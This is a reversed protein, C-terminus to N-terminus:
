RINENQLAIAKNQENIEENYINILIAIEQPSMQQFTSGDINIKTFATYMTNYFNQLGTSFLSLIINMFENSLVTAKVETLNFSNNGDIITCDKLTKSLERAFQNIRTLIITPLQTLIIDQEEKTLSSFNITNNNFCITKIMSTYMEGINNFYMTNPLGLLIKFGHVTILKSQEMEFSELNSLIKAVSYSIGHNDNLLSIESGVFIMRIAVLCYFKDIISYSETSSKFIIEEFFLNLGALDQNECYKLITLYNCNTLEAVDISKGSPLALKVHFKGIM